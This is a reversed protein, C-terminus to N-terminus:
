TLSTRNVEFALFFCPFFFSHSDFESKPLFVLNATLFSTNSLKNMNDLDWVANWGVKQCVQQFTM